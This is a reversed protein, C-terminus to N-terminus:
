KKLKNQFDTFSVANNPALKPVQSSKLDSSNVVLIEQDSTERKKMFHRTGLFTLIGAGVASAVGVLILNRKNTKAITAIKDELGKIQNKLADEQSKYESRGTRAFLMAGLGTLGGALYAGVREKIDRSQRKEIQQTVFVDDKALLDDKVPKSYDPQMHLEKYMHYSSEGSPHMSANTKWGTQLNQLNTFIKQKTAKDSKACAGIADSLEAALIGDKLDRAFGEFKFSYDKSLEDWDDWKFPMEEGEKLWKEIDEKRKGIFESYKSGFEKFVTDDFIEKGDKGKTKFIPFEEKVKALAEENGEKSAYANIIPKVQEQLLNFEHKTKYSTAKDAEEEIRPDFNKQKFGQTNTVIPTCYYKMAELDTLGCPEFRSSFIAADAASAMAYAPAWGDIHVVRGQLEPDKLIEAMKAEVKKSEDGNDLGAGLILIANKGEETKAFKEFASLTVDHGKQTDIRGWSVFLPVEDGKGAKIKELLEPKIVPFDADEPAEPNISATRNKNGTVITNDKASLRKLLKLKNGNKVKRMDEYSANEPYVEFKPYIKGDTDKCDENYRANPLAKTPDISTDELPNLIGDFTGEEYLEKLHNHINHAAQPNEALNKAYEEAVTTFTKVFGEGNATDKKAYHIPIMVASATGTEDLTKEVFPKFYDDGLLGDRYIPDNEIARIQEATAGLNVFMNQKSTEGCYGPGLNHAVYSTKIDALESNDGNKVVDQAVYEPVYAMQADSCVITAPNFNPKDKIAEPLLSTLAKDFKAYIDGDWNHTESFAGSKYPQYDDKKAPQYPKKMAATESLFTFYYINEPDDKIKFLKIENNSKKGWQMSKEAVLDLKIDGSDTHLVYDGDEDKCPTVKGTKEDVDARYYPSIVMTDKPSLMTGYDKMVVGVGGAKSYPAVEAGVFISQQKNRGTFSLPSSFYESMSVVKLGLNNKYPRNSQAAVKSPMAKAAYPMQQKVASIRM